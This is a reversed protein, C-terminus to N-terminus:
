CVERKSLAVASFAIYVQVLYGIFFLFREEECRITNLALLKLEEEDEFTMLEM